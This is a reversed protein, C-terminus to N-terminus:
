ELKELLPVVVNKLFETQAETASTSRQMVRAFEGAETTRKEHSAVLATRAEKLEVWLHLVAYLLCLIFIGAIGLKFLEQEM